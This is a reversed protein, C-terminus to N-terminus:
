MDPARLARQLRAISRRLIRSVQMQSVGVRDAIETQTHDEVLRLALVRRDREPLERAADALSARLDVLDFRDDVCGLSDALAGAEGDGDDRPTALSIAHHAAAAELGDTVEEIPLEMYQAIQRITPALGTKAVLARRAEDIKLAREQTGRPVHVSWGSDRFYRKLEGLITPVAYTSFAVGREYDFRDIAKVLGLSAVQLLDDFPERAGRYRGALRRALPMYREVLLERARQDRQRQWRAFLEDSDVLDSPLASHTQTARATQTRTV